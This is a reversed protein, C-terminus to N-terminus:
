PMITSNKYSRWRIISLQTKPLDLMIYHRPVLSGEFAVLVMRVGGGLGSKAAHAGPSHIGELDFAPALHPNFELADDPPADITVPIYTVDFFRWMECVVEVLSEDFCEQDM